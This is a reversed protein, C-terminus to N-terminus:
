DVKKLYGIGIRFDDSKVEVHDGIRWGVGAKSDVVICNVYKIEKKDLKGMLMVM